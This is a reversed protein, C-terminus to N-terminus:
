QDNKNNDANIIIEVCGLGASNDNGFGCDYGIKILRPDAVVTFPAEFGKIKTKINNDIKKFHILKSIKGQRKAIYNVDFSFKFEHKHEHDAYDTKYFTRYKNILNKKIDEIFHKREEPNMYDLYHQELGGNAKERQTSVAIPSLCLFKCENNFVPEPLSEVQTVSFNIKEGSFNLYFTQDSFLGLILHEYSQEIPTSFIFSIEKVRSFGTKQIKTPTFFLKSFTFLKFRKKVTENIFGKDHLYESYEGSSKEILGYIASHLAYNYNFPIAAPSETLATIKVRLIDGEVM